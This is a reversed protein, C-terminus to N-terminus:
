PGLPTQQQNELLLPIMGAGLTSVGTVTTYWEDGRTDGTHIVKIVQYLGDADLPTILQGRQAKMLRISSNDIKVITELKIKPNLLCKIEVGNNVQQPYGILGTKPTLVVESGSPIDSSRILYVQNDEIYFNANNEYAITRLYDKPKGFIVKGRPLAQTSLNETVRAVQVPYNAQGAVADIIQRPTSNAAKSVTVFGQNIFDQGDEAVFNLQYDVNNEQLRFIQLLLGDFIKGYQIPENVIQGSQNPTAQQIVGEYGAEITVHAGEKLIDSETQANLNYIQVDAMNALSLATKEIRFTCRLNSVDWAKGGGKPEIRVKYKRGWLTKSM